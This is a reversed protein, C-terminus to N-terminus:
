RKGGKHNATLNQLAQELGVGKPPESPDLERRAIALRYEPFVTPEVGLAGAIGELIEPALPRKGRKLASIWSGTFSSPAGYSRAEYALDDQSM